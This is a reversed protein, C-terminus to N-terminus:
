EASLIFYFYPQGGYYTQIELDPYKKTTIDCLEKLTTDSVEQGQYITLLRNGRRLKDIVEEAVPIVERGRTVLDGEFLGLIDGKKFVLNRYRGKKVAYTVEGTMIKKSAASMKKVNEESSKESDFSLLAAIGQPISVTPVIYIRKETKLQASKAMPILNSDNTLVIVENATVDDIVKVIERVSPNMLKKCLLVDAGLDRFIDALGEGMTIAMVKTPSTVESVQIFLNESQARMDDIKQHLVTGIKSCQLIVSKPHNSHLHLKILDGSKSVALSDSCEKLKRTVESAKGTEDRVVCEVCYRYALDEKRKKIYKALSGSIIEKVAALKRGKFSALMAELMLVFGQGGADVVDADKLVPLLEPTRELSEKAKALAHEWLKIVDPEKEAWASVEEATERAVTLITGEVPKEMSKYAWDSAVKFALALEKSGIKEKGKLRDAFGEIWQSLIAGSCGRASMLAEEAVTEAVHSLNDDTEQLGEVIGQLTLSMNIGTDGDPVPFVNLINIQEKNNFIHDAALFVAKKLMSGDIFEM